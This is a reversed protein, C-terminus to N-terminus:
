FIPRTPWQLVVRNRFYESSEILTAHRIYKFFDLTTEVKDKQVQKTELVQTIESTMSDILEKFKSRTAEENKQILAKRFAIIARQYADISEITSSSLHASRVQEQGALIKELFGQVRILIRIDDPGINHDRQLLGVVRDAFFGEGLINSVNTFESERLLLGSGNQKYIKQRLDNAGEQPLMEGSFIAKGPKHTQQSCFRSESNLANVCFATRRTTLSSLCNTHLVFVGSFIWQKGRM